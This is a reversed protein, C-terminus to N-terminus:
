DLPCPQAPPMPFFPMAFSPDCVDRRVHASLAKFLWWMLVM